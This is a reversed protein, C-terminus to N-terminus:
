IHQSGNEERDQKACVQALAYMVKVSMKSNLVWNGLIAQTVESGSWLLLAAVKEM